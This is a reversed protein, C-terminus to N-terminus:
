SFVAKIYNYAYEKYPISGYKYLSMFAQLELFDQYAKKNYKEFDKNNNVEEIMYKIYENARNLIEEKSLKPM